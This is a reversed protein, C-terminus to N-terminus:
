YSDRREVLVSSGLNASRVLAEAVETVRMGDLANAYSSNGKMMSIAEKDSEALVLEAFARMEREFAIEFREPFAPAIDTAAHGSKLVSASTHKLEGMQVSGKTCVLESTVNYGYDFARSWHVAVRAGSEMELVAMVLDVDGFEKLEPYSMATSSVFVLKVESKLLWRALDVDHVALDKLMSNEPATGPRRYKEPYLADGSTCKLAVPTGIEGRDVAVRGRMYAPDWRRMFGAMFRQVKNERLSALAPAIDEVSYGLPKESFIIKGADAAARILQPHTPPATAIVVARVDPNNLADNYSAFLADASLAEAARALADERGSALGLRIGRQKALNKAHILGMEGLGLVAVLPRVARAM